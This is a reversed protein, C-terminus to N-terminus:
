APVAFRLMNWSQAPLRAVCEGGEVTLEGMAVPIGDTSVSSSVAEHGWARAKEGLAKVDISLSLQQADRNVAFLTVARLDPDWTATTSVLPVEDAVDGADYCPSQPRTHLVTQNACAAMLAFPHFITQRWAPKGPSTRIPAIVNVLQAQNAISVRDAHRLLSILLDGVVVADTVDYDDEILAPSEIWARDTPETFRSQRWVNWEDVSLRMRKKRGLRARMHDCTAVVDDVFRELVAGSALFEPVSTVDPDFYHHLAVYDVHDYAHELLESEWQGFTPMKSNSSGAAVLEIDPDVIRMAKATEAALRAYEYPTKSGVQWPGDMENGLCWLKIGHPEEFGHNRRLDSWYTNAPHNCYEILDVAETVGRTGLNVTMMPEVGSKRTWSMFEGLGFDNTELCRWALNLRNPRATRPGVGDEWRYSSVFNGGPYRVVNVGLERVLDIVDGRFGDADASPDDPDYIGGYICRGMHEAFSGFMRPDVDAVVADPDIAVRADVRVGGM